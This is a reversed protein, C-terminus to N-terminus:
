VEVRYEASSGSCSVDVGGALRAFPHASASSATVVGLLLACLVVRSALRCAVGDRRPYPIKRSRMMDGRKLEGCSRNVAQGRSSVDRGGPTTLNYHAGSRSIGSPRLLFM